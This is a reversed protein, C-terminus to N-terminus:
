LNKKESKIQKIQSEVQRKQLLMNGVENVEKRMYGRNDMVNDAFKSTIEEDYPSFAKKFKLSRQAPTFEKKDFDEDKEISEIGKLLYEYNITSEGPVQLSNKIRNQYYLNLYDM